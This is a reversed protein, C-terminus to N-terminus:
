GELAEPSVRGEAVSVVSGTMRVSGSPDLEIALAGGPMVVRVAADCRGLRHAVAAAACASTGSALTYGAGREWIEVRLTARDV